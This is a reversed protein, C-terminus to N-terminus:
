GFIFIVWGKDLVIFTYINTLPIKQNYPSLDQPWVIFQQFVLPVPETPVDNFGENFTYLSTIKVHESECYFYLILRDTHPVYGFFFGRVYM